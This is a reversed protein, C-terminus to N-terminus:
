LYLIYCVFQSFCFCVNNSIAVDLSTRRQREMNRKERSLRLLYANKSSISQENTKYSEGFGREVHFKYNKCDFSGTLGEILLEIDLNFFSPM